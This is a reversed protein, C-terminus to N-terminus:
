GAHHDTIKRKYRRLQTQVKDRAENFAIYIDHSQHDGKIDIGGGRVGENVIITCLFDKGEKKFHVESDIANGFYKTVSSTMSEQVYDNLAKSEDINATIVRVKM